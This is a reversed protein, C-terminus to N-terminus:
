GFIMTLPLAFIMTFLTVIILITIPMGVFMVLIAICPHRFVFREAKTEFQYEFKHITKMIAAM